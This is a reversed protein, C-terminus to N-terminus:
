LLGECLQRLVDDARRHCALLITLVLYPLDLIGTEDLNQPKVRESPDRKRFLSM